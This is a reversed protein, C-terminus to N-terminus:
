QCLSPIDNYFTTHTKFLCHNERLFFNYIFEFPRYPFFFFFKCKDDILQDILIDTPAGDRMRHLWTVLPREPYLADM